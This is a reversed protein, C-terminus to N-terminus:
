FNMKYSDVHQTEEMLIDILIRRSTSLLEFYIQRGIAQTQVRHLKNRSDQSKQIRNKRPCNKRM